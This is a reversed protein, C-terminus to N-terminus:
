MIEKISLIGKKVYAAYGVGDSGGNSKAFKPAHVSQGFAWKRQKCQEPTLIPAVKDTLKLEKKWVSTLVEPSMNKDDSSNRGAQGKEDQASSSSKRSQEKRGFRNKSEGPFRPASLGGIGYGKLSIPKQLRDESPFYSPNPVDGPHCNMSYEVAHRSFGPQAPFYEREKGSLFCIKQSKDPFVVYDM